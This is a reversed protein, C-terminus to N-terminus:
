SIQVLNDTVREVQRMVILASSAAAEPGRASLGKDRLEDLAHLSHDSAHPLVRVDGVLKGDAVVPLHRYGSQNMRTLVDHLDAEPSVTELTDSMLDNVRLM